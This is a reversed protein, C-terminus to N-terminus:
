GRPQKPAIPKGTWTVRPPPLRLKRLQLVRILAYWTTGKRDAPDPWRRRLQRNLRGVLITTDVIIALMSLMWLFSVLAQINQMKLLGVVLVVVAIPLFLEAIAFRGDIFDRVFGRVPGKDRPPLASEDGAMMAARASVREQAARERAAKRAEKPDSPVRLTSKRAAEAERRTPTPRGKGGAGSPAEPTEPM